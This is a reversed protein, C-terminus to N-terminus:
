GHGRIAELAGAVGIIAMAVGALWVVTLHWSATFGEASGFTTNLDSSASQAVFTVGAGLGAVVMWAAAIPMGTTATEWLWWALGAALLAAVIAPRGDPLQLGASRAARPIMENDFEPHSVWSSNSFVVALISCGLVLKLKIDEGALGASASSDPKEGM